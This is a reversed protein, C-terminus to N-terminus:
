ALHIGNWFIFHVFKADVIVYLYVSEGVVGVRDEVHIDIFHVDVTGRKLDREQQMTLSLHLVM